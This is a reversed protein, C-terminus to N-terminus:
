AVPVRQSLAVDATIRRRDAAAPMLSSAHPRCSTKLGQPVPPPHTHPLLTHLVPQITNNYIPSRRQSPMRTAALGFCTSPGCYKSYIWSRRPASKQCARLPAAKPAADRSPDGREVALTFCLSAIPKCHPAEVNGFVIRKVLRVRRSRVTTVQKRDPICLGLNWVM